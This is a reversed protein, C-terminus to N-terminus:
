TIATVLIFALYCVLCPPSLLAEALHSKEEKGKEPIYSSEKGSLAYRRYLRSAEACFATLFLLFLAALILLFLETSGTTRYVEGAFDRAFLGYMNYVFHACMSGAISRTAYMTLFLVVGSFLYIILKAFDFHILGFLLSSMVLACLVGNEEYEACLVSRFFFEECVAPLAAYAISAYLAAGATGDYSATFTDYLSFGSDGLGESYLISLLLSGCIMVLAGVLSLVLQEAGIPRLRLRKSYGEGRLKCFIVAPVLFILIQLVIVGLYENEGANETIRVVKSLVLLLYSIAALTSM